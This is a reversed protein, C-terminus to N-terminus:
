DKNIKQTKIKTDMRERGKEVQNNKKLWTLVKQLAKDAFKQSDILLM